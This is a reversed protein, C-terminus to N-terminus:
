MQLLLAIAMPADSVGLMSSMDHPYIMKHSICKFGFSDFGIQSASFMFKFDYSGLIGWTGSMRLKSVKDHDFNPITRNM